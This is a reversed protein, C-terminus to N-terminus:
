RSDSPCNQPKSLPLPNGPIQRRHQNTHPHTPRRIFNQEKRILSLFTLHVTQVGFQSTTDHVFHSHFCIASILLLTVCMVDPTYGIPSMM